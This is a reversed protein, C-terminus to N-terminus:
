SIRTGVNAQPPIAIRAEVIPLEFIFATRNGPTSECWIRGDHAEIIRRALYLGLGTGNIAHADARAFKDFIRETSEADVGPGRDIVAVRVKLQPGGIIETEVEITETPPSNKRANELLNSLVQALRDPDASVIVGQDARTLVVHPTGGTRDVAAQLEARLDVQQFVYGFRGAEIAETDLVDRAM